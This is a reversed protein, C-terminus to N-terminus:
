INRESNIMQNSRLCDENSDLSSREFDTHEELIKFEGESLGTHSIDDTVIVKINKGERKKESVFSSREVSSNPNLHPLPKIVLSNVYELQQKRKHRSELIMEELLVESKKGNIIYRRNVM